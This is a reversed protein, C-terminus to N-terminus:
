PSEKMQEFPGFVVPKGGSVVLQGRAIVDRVQGSEELVVVDADAGAAIRGKRPLRLQRAVNSTFIETAM